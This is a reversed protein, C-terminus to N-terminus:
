HLCGVKCPTFDMNFKSAIDMYNRSSGNVGLNTSTMRRTDTPQDLALYSADQTHLQLLWYTDAWLGIWPTVVGKGSKGIGKKTNM